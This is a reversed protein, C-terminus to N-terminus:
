ETMNFLTIFIDLTLHQAAIERLLMLKTISYNGADQYFIEQESSFVATGIAISIVDMGADLHRVQKLSARERVAVALRVATKETLYRPIHIVHAQRSASWSHNGDVDKWIGNHCRYYRHQHGINDYLYVHVPSVHNPRYISQITFDSLADRRDEM